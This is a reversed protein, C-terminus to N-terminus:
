SFITTTGMIWPTLAGNGTRRCNTLDLRSDDDVEASYDFVGRDLCFSKQEHM